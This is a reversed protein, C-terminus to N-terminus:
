DEDDRFVHSLEQLKSLCNKTASRYIMDTEVVKYCSTEYLGTIISLSSNFSNNTKSLMCLLMMLLAQFPLHSHGKVPNSNHCFDYYTKM